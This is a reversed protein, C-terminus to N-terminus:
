APRKRRPAFFKKTFAALQGKKTTARFTPASCADLFRQLKVHKHRSSVAGVGVWLCALERWFRRHLKSSNEGSRQATTKRAANVQDLEVQLKDILDSLLPFLPGDAAIGLHNRRFSDYSISHGFRNKDLLARAPKLVALAKAIQRPREAASQRRRAEFDSSALTGYYWSMEQLADRLPRKKVTNPHDLSRWQQGPYFPRVSLADIDIGVDLLSKEIARWEVAGYTGEPVPKEDRLNALSLIIRGRRKTDRRPRRV